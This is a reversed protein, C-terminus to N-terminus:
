CRHGAAKWIAARASISDVCCFVCDGVGFHPRFRDEVLTLEIASHIQRLIRATAEVKALGVDSELYGQTVVNTVEVTDFDILTLRSVGLAALQISVQRGIAGVGIVTVHLSALKERPVLSDQRSYRDNSPRM